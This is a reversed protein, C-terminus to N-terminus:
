SSTAVPGRSASAMRAPLHGFRSLVEPAPLGVVPRGRPPHRCRARRDTDVDVPVRAARRYREARQSLRARVVGQQPRATGAPSTPSPPMSGPQPTSTSTWAPTACSGAACERPGPSSWPATAPMCPTASRVLAGLGAAACFSVRDLALVLRPPCAVLAASIVHERLAAATAHDIEGVIRVM